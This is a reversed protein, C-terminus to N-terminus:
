SLLHAVILSFVFVVSIRMELNSPASNHKMSSELVASKEVEVAGPFSRIDSLSSWGYDNKARVRAEYTGPELNRMPIVGLYSNDGNREVKLEATVWQDEQQKKYMMEFAKIPSHSTVNWIIIPCKLNEDINTSVFSPKTPKGSLIITKNSSGISNKAVCKYYGFDTHKTNSIRLIHENGENLPNIHHSQKLTLDDKLWSVKAAPHAHVICMMESEYGVASNVINKPTEIEPEYEVDVIITKQDKGQINSATCTYEGSTKRSVQDYTITEGELAEEKHGHKKKHTWSIKPKPEGVADCMLTLPNGRKLVKPSGEPVIRLIKPIANIEVTHKIIQGAMALIECSYVGVDERKIDKIHLTNQNDLEIRDNKIQKTIDFFLPITENLRWQVVAADQYQIKCPLSLTDGLSPTLHQGTSLIFPPPGQNSGDEDLGADDDAYDPDDCLVQNNFATIGLFLFLLAHALNM